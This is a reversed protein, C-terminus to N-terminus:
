DIFIVPHNYDIVSSVAADLSVKLVIDEFLNEYLNYENSEVHLKEHDYVKDHLKFIDVNSMSTHFISNLCIPLLNLRETQAVIMPIVLRTSKSIIFYAGIELKHQVICENIGNVLVRDLDSYSLKKWFPLDKFKTTAALGNSHKNVLEKGSIFREDFREKFHDTVYIQIYLDSSIKMESKYKIYSSDLRAQTYYKELKGEHLNDKLFDNLSITKM